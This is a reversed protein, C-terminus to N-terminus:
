EITRLCFQSLHPPIIDVAAAAANHKIPPTTYARSNIERSSVATKSATPTSIKTNYITIVAFPPVNKTQTGTHMTNKTSPVVTIDSASIFVSAAKVNAPVSADTLPVTM